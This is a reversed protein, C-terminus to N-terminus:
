NCLNKKMRKKTLNVVLSALAERFKKGCFKKAWIKARTKACNKYMKQGIIQVFNGCDKLIKKGM